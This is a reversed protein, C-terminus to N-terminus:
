DAIDIIRHELVRGDGLELWGYTSTPARRRETPSGPNFLLQGDIGYEALPLHSHGYVVVAAEPFMRRLRRPRGASPGSDHVMAVDVGGLCVRLTVPLRDVLEHDNNGLVAHVPARAALEDLLAPSVVDGAHLIVDAQEAAGWVAAPLSRRHDRVHTDAVVLVRTRQPPDDGDGWEAAADTSAATM